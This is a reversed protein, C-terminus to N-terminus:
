SCGRGCLILRRLHQQNSPCRHLGAHQRSPVLAARPSLVGPGKRQVSHVAHAYLLFELLYVHASHPDPVCWPILTATPASGTERSTEIDSSSRLSSRQEHKYWHLFRLVCILSETPRPKRTRTRVSASIRTATRQYLSTHTCVQAHRNFALARIELTKAEIVRLLEEVGSEQRELMQREVVVSLM